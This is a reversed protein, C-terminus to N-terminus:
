ADSAEEGVKIQMLLMPIGCAFDLLWPLLTRDYWNESMSGRPFINLGALRRCDKCGVRDRRQAV